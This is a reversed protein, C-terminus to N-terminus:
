GKSARGSSRYRYDNKPRQIRFALMTLDDSQEADGVFRSVAETMATIIEQVSMSGGQDSLQALVRDEKFLQGDSRTAETLGDTYLFFVSGAPLTTEQQSYVWDQMIGVPVNADVSLMRPNGGSIVVPANHGANTYHLVGSSLDLVGVFLTVFMLNENRASIASNITSMIREPSDVSASITRFMSSIVTMVLAAPIGKGSVDGICFFLKGDRLRFDYLDGGVAKAPSVCGYIDLDDRDPFAPWTMPLMSMQISRAVGLESEMSANQATTEKLEEIYEALSTQMNDFSDRLLRIEDNTDIRPLETDFKGTAIEQASESLQILPQSTKKISRHCIYFVTLLGIFILILIADGFLYGPRLLRRIPVVICMSWGSHLLQAFYAESEIGDIRVRMEGSEGARMTDGLKRYKDAEKGVAYDYFNTKLIRGKDPHVIYDGDPGIIFCYIQYKPDKPDEPDLKRFPTQENEHNILDLIRTSLGDLSIDAGFVGAIEGDPEMKLPRSFTCLVTEGGERDLYPNSWVGEPSVLGKQYWPALFYDHNQSGIIKMTIEDGANLVYPEYWRGEQPYFDPVFGIGCGYIHRNVNLEYQLTSLVLEPTALHWSLEDMINNASVEVMSMIQAMDGKTKDMIDSYHAKSFLHLGATAVMFVLVSIIAMIVLVTFVVNRTLRSSFSEISKKM